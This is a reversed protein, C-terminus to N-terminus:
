TMDRQTQRIRFAGVDGTTIHYSIFTENQFVIVTGDSSSPFILALASGSQVDAESRINGM